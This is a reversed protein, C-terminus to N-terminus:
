IMPVRIYHAEDYQEVVRDRRRVRNAREMVQLAQQIEASRLVETLASDGSSQRKGITGKNGAVKGESSKRTM